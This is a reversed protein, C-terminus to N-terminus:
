KLNDINSYFFNYNFNILKKKIYKQIKMVWKIVQYIVEQPWLSIM